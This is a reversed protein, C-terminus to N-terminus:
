SLTGSQRNYTIAVILLFLVGKITFVFAANVGSMILGNNLMYYILSGLVINKIRVGYGGSLSLGGLVLVILCDIQYTNGTSATIGGSRIMSLFASVGVAAGSIGFAAMKYFGVNVGSLQACRPNTGIASNYRGIKTYQFLIYAAICMVAIVILYFTINDLQTYMSPTALASGAVSGVIGKGIFMACLGGIFAPIGLVVHTAGVILSLVIASILCAPFMLLPHIKAFWYGALCSLALVGGISLDVNGHALVFSTGLAGIMVIASQMVILKLNALALFRGHTLISFLLMIVLTGAAVFLDASHGQVYHKVKTM